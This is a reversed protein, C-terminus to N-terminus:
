LFRRTRAAGGGVLSRRERRPDLLPQALHVQGAEPRPVRALERAALLLPHGERPRQDEVRVDQEEVLERVQVRLNNPMRTCTRASIRVNWCSSADRGDVHRVVLLLRQGEGVAHRDHVAPRGRAGARVAGRARRAGRVRKTASKTPVLLRTAPRTASTPPSASTTSVSRPRRRAWGGWSSAREPHALGAHEGDPRVHGDRGGPRGRRGAVAVAGGPPDGEGGVEPVGEPYFMSVAVPSVILASMRSAHRM